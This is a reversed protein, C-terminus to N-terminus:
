LEVSGLVFTVLDKPIITARRQMLLRQVNHKTTQHNQNAVSRPQDLVSGHKTSFITHTTSSIWDVMCWCVEMTEWRRWCSLSEEVQYVVTTKTLKDGREKNIQRWTGGTGGERITETTCTTTATVSATLSSSSFFFDAADWSSSFFVFFSSLINNNGHDIFCLYTRNLYNVCVFSLFHLLFVSLM